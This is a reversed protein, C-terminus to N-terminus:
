LWLVFLGGAIALSGLGVCVAWFAVRRVVRMLADITAYGVLASAALAVAAAGPAVGMAGGTDLVTLVGAGVAAPISLLFSLGFASEGDHGRFLLVSATTGSRSVGPLIALGQGAGVLVADVGDPREREGLDTTETARQVGGTVLLLVGILAIFAGGSLETAADLLLVYAGIGVVGSVLTAVGLFTLTATEGDFARRPRWEPILALVERLETRYYVAAAFATGVHLFLALKVALSPAYGLSTLLVTVSGESSIPLWEVVGQVVGVLLVVLLAGPNTGTEAVLAVLTSWDQM